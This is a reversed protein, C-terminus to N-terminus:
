DPFTIEVIQRNWSGAAVKVRSAYEMVVTALIKEAGLPDGVQGIDEVSEFFIGTREHRAYSAKMQRLACAEVDDVHRGILVQGQLHEEVVELAVQGAWEEAGDVHVWAGLHPLRSGILDDEGVDVEM